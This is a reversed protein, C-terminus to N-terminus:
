YLFDMLSEQLLKLVYEEQFEELFLGLCKKLITPIEDSIEALSKKSHGKM